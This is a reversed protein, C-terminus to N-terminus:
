REIVTIHEKHFSVACYLMAPVKSSVAAIRENAVYHLTMYWLGCKLNRCLATGNKLRCSAIHDLMDLVIRLKVEELFRAPM